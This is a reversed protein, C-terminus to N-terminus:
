AGPRSRRRLHRGMQTELSHFQSEHTRPPPSMLYTNLSGMEHSDVFLQPNWEQLAKSRGRSEPQSLIFMDRNLDFFYHNGRGWPWMGRHQATQVDPNPVKGTFMKMQALYRDRGDPNQMPDICVVTEQRIKQTAGDQGAALQYAIWIAADAPSLEDGHISYALWAVAPTKQIIDQAEAGSELKRPDALKGIRERISALQAMNEPSSVILCVLQRGEHTEGYVHLQVHGASESLTKFYALMEGHTAAKTGVPYGLVSEPAPISEDYACGEVFPADYTWDNPSAAGAYLACALIAIATFTLSLRQRQSM